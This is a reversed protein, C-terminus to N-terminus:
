LLIPNTHRREIIPLLQQCLDVPQDQLLWLILMARKDDFDASQMFHESVKRHVAFQHHPMAGLLVQWRLVSAAQIQFQMQVAAKGTRDMSAALSIQCGNFGPRKKFLLETYPIRCQCDVGCGNMTTLLLHQASGQNLCTQIPMKPLLMGNQWVKEGM